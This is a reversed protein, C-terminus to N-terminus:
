PRPLRLGHERLLAPISALDMELGYRAPLEEPVGRDPAGEGARLHEVLERFYAAFGGPIICELVLARDPGPNWFAHAVGRPKWIVERPRATVLREGVLAQVTGYVVYSLEDERSHTHIPSGLVGPAMPHEVLSFESSVYREIFGLDVEQDQVRARWEDNDTM